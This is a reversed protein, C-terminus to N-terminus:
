KIIKYTFYPYAYGYKIYVYKNMQSIFTHSYLVSYKTEKLASFHLIKGLLLLMHMLSGPRLGVYGEEWTWGHSCRAPWRGHENQLFCLKTLSKHQSRISIRPRAVRSLTAWWSFASSSLRGQSPGLPSTHCHGVGLNEALTPPQTWITRNNDLKLCSGQGKQARSENEPFHSHSRRVPTLPSNFAQYM